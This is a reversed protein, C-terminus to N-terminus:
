STSALRLSSLRSHEIPWRFLSLWCRHGRLKKLLGFLSVGYMVAVVLLIISGVILATHTGATTGLYSPNLSTRSAPIAWWFAVNGVEGIISIIIFFILIKPIIWLEGAKATM